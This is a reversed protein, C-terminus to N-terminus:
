TSNKLSFCIISIFDCIFLIGFLTLIIDTINITGSLKHQGEIRIKPM